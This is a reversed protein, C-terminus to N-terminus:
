AHPVHFSFNLSNGEIFGEGYTQLIDFDKKFSGNSYKPRAYGIQPDFINRYNLARKRYTEAIEHVDMLLEGNFVPLEKHNSFPLFDKYLQDSTASIVKVPGSGKVGKEISRVSALTPSGGTDGTGYYRYVTNSPTKEAM